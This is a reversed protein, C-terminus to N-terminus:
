YGTEQRLINIKNKEIYREYLENADMGAAILINMFFHFADVMEDKFKDEKEATEDETWSDYKKSWGKAFKLEHLAESMEDSTWLMMEKIYSSKEKESMEDFNFGVKEQFQKQMTMMIELKNQTM